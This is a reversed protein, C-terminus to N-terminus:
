RLTSTSTLSKINVIKRYSVSYRKVFRPDLKFQVMSCDVDVIEFDRPLLSFTQSSHELYYFIVCVRFYMLMVHLVRFPLISVFPVENPSFDFYFSYFFKATLRSFNEWYLLTNLSELTISSM